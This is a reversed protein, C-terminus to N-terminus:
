AAFETHLNPRRVQPKTCRLIELSDTVRAHLVTHERYMRIRTRQREGLVEEVGDDRNIGQDIVSRVIEVQVVQGPKYFWSALNPNGACPQHLLDFARNRLMKAFPPRGIEPAQM